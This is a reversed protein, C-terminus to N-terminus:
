RLSSKISFPGAFDIGCIAFPHSPEVRQKPLDDTIPQLITPKTRFCKVCEYFIKRATNRGHVPWYREWVYALMVAPGGHMLKIHVDRFILKTLTSTPPLLAPQRQFLDFTNANKLRGGVRIVLENDVFPRLRFIQSKSSVQNKTKLDALERAWYHAQVVRVIRHTAQIIEDTQL